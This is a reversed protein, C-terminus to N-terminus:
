VPEFQAFRDLLTTARLTDGHIPGESTMARSRLIVGKEILSWFLWFEPRIIREGDRIEGNRMQFETGKSRHRM